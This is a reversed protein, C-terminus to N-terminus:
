RCHRETFQQQNHRKKATSLWKLRYLWNGRCQDINRLIHSTRPLNRLIHSTRGFNKANKADHTGRDTQRERDRSGSKKRPHNAITTPEETCHFLKCFQTRYTLWDRRSWLSHNRHPLHYYKSEHNQGEIWRSTFSVPSTKMERERRRRKWRRRWWWRWWWWWGWWEQKGTGKERDWHVPSYLNSAYRATLEWQACMMITCVCSSSSHNMKRRRGWKRARGRGRWRRKATLWSTNEEREIRVERRGKRKMWRFRVLKGTRNEGRDNKKKERTCGERIRTDNREREREREKHADRHTERTQSSFPFAPLTKKENWEKGEDTIMMM